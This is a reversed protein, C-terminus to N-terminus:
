LYYEGVRVYKLTIVDTNQVTVPLIIGTKYYKTQGRINERRREDDTRSCRM